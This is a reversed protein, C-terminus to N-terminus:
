WQLNGFPGASLVGRELPECYCSGRRPYEYGASKNWCCIRLAVFSFDDISVLHLVDHEELVLWVKELM